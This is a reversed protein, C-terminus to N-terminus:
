TWLEPPTRTDGAISRSPYLNYTNHYHANARVLQKHFKCPVGATGRLAASLWQLSRTTAAWTRM